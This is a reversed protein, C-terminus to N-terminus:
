QSMKFGAIAQQHRQEIDTRDTFTTTEGGMWAIAKLRFAAKKDIEETGLLGHITPVMEANRSDGEFVKASRHRLDSISDIETESIIEIIEDPINPIEDIQGSPLEGEPEVSIEIPNKFVDVNTSEIREVATEFQDRAQRYRLKSVTQQGNVYAIVATQFSKEGAQVADQIASRTEQHTKVDGLVTQIREIDKEIDARDSPSSANLATKYLEIADSYKNIAKKLNGASRAKEADTAAEDAETRIKELSQDPSDVGPSDEPSRDKDRFRWVTYLGLSTAVGAVTIQVEQTGLNIGTQGTGIPDGTETREESADIAYRWDNHHGLTGLQVRSDESSGEAGADLAYVTEDDSGVFVTGDVVTPSSFVSDGTEFSWRQEGSAADVAYLNGNGSGVFVIGDAVTPSSRIVNDTEFTWAEEGTAADLAYLIADNSGVFVTGDVVTPSPRVLRSTEFTWEQDGSAANLAYVTTDHCGVYVTGHVITPSSRIPNDTEFTWVEEGTAVDLAYLSNGDNGVYVIGNAVTPSSFIPNDTDFTWEEEGSATNLAYVASFGGIYLTGNVVTPSSGSLRNTEFTWEEEGSAADLAYVTNDNSGTYVTGNVVTPSSRIGNDTEFTWEEEGSVADLAYVTGDDSGVYVTENVITPSSRVLDGTEFSWLRDGASTSQATSTRSLGTAGFTGVSITKLLKRRNVASTQKQQWRTLRVFHNQGKNIMITHNQM